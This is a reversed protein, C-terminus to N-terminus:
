VHYEGGEVREDTIFSILYLSSEESLWVLSILMGNLMGLLVGAALDLLHHRRLLLRSISVSVVWAMLPPLFVFHLPYLAIFFYAIYCARSVHGSPFSYVDPGVTMWM